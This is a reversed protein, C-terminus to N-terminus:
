FTAVTEFSTKYRVKLGGENNGQVAAAKEAEDRRQQQRKLKEPDKVGRGELQLTISLLISIIHIVLLVSQHLETSLKNAKSNSHRWNLM